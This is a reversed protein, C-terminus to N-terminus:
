DPCSRSESQNKKGNYIYPLVQTGTAAHMSMACGSYLLWCAFIMILVGGPLMLSALGFYTACFCLFGACPFCLFFAQVRNTKMSLYIPCLLILASALYGGGDMTAIGALQGPTMEVHALQCFFVLAGHGVNNFLTIGTLVGNAMAGIVDGNVILMVIAILMLPVACVMWTLTGIISSPEAVGLLLGCMSFIAVGTVVNAFGNCDGTKLHNM